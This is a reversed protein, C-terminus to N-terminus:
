FRRKFPIEMIVKTGVIKQDSIVDSLTVSVNKGYLDKLIEFRNIISKVSFSEHNKNQRNKIEQSKVRGIGNDIIECLLKENTLSFVISLVKDGKKHLLGHKLANEVFPQILMPPIELDSIGNVEITFSFDKKFRLEELELYVTLVNIEEEIDIFEKDSHNLIKRVLLAFKSIYGYANERDQKLILDQISNLSNFIFHPNMQSKLATLQTLNLQNELLAKKQLRKIQIKYVLYTAILFLSIVLAYFWWREWYPKKITFSYYITESENLKHVSKVKFTYKNPPLSKYEFIHDKHSSIIWTKDIGELQHHYYIDNQYKLSKSDIEFAFKKQNHEFNHRSTDVKEENVLVKGIAISPQFPVNIIKDLKIKQLGKHTLIWLHGDYMEFNLILNSLLGNSKNISTLVKGKKDTINLGINTSIFLKNDYTKILTIRDSILGTKKNWHDILLDNEFVLVGERSAIYIRNDINLIDRCALKEGNLKFFHSSDENGIKLGTNTVSYISKTKSNYGVSQSWEKFTSIPIPKKGHFHDEDMLFLGASTAIIYQGDDKRCIGRMSSIDVYHKQRTLLNFLNNKNDNFIITNYRSLVALFEIQQAGKKKINKINNLSDIEFIEGKQTGIFLTGDESFTLQSINSSVSKLKIELIDLNPIVILGSGFTGLIINGENDKLFASIVQSDFLPEYNNKANLKEDFLYIGGSLNAAWFNTNDSFYRTKQNVYKFDPLTSVLNSSMVPNIRSNQGSNIAGSGQNYVIVSNKHKVHQLFAPHITNTKEQTLIDNKLRYVNKYFRSYFVLSSDMNRYVKFLRKIIKGNNSLGVVDKDIIYKIKKNDSVQFVETTSIILKNNNDFEYDIERSMLSDPVTFFLKCTDNKMQFIQGSLNSCYVIHDHDEVFNFVARTKMETTNFLQFKYTDYKFLGYNSAIWYNGNQDQHLDYINMGALEDAGLIFHSPQQALTNLTLCLLILLTTKIKNM